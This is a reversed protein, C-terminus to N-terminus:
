IDDNNMLKRWLELKKWVNQGKSEGPNIWTQLICICLNLHIQRDAMLETGNLSWLGM